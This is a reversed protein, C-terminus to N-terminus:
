RWPLHVQSFWWRFWPWIMNGVIVIILSFATQLTGCWAPWTGVVRASWCEVFKIKFWVAPLSGNFSRWESTDIDCQMPMHACLQAMSLVPCPQSILCIIVTAAFNWSLMRLYIHTHTYEHNNRTLSYACIMYIHKCYQICVCTHLTYVHMHINYVRVMYIYTSICQFYTRCRM